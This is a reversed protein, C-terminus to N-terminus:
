SCLWRAGYRIIRGPRGALPPVLWAGKKKKAAAPFELRDVMAALRRLGPLHDPTLTVVRRWWTDGIDEVQPWAEQPQVHIMSPEGLWVMREVSTAATALRLTQMFRGMGNNLPTTVDWHHGPGTGSAWLLGSHRAGPSPYGYDHAWLAGPLLRSVLLEPPHTPPLLTIDGVKERDVAEFDVDGILWLVGFRQGDRTVSGHLDHLM